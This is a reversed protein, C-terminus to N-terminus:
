RGQFGPWMHGQAGAARCVAQSCSGDVFYLCLSTRLVSKSEVSSKPCSSHELLFLFPSLNFTYLEYSLAPCATWSPIYYWSLLLKMSLAKCDWETDAAPKSYSAVKGLYAEVDSSNFTSIIRRNYVGSLYFAWANRLGSRDHLFHNNIFYNPLFFYNALFRSFWKLKANTLEYLELFAAKRKCSERKM